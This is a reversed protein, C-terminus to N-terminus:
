SVRWCGRRAIPARRARICRSEASNSRRRVTAGEAAPVPRRPGRVASQASRARGRERRDGRGCRARDGGSRACADGSHQGGRGAARRRRPRPVRGQADGHPSLVLGRRALTELQGPAYPLVRIDASESLATMVKNPIPCQFQVDVEGRALAEAGAAFDLYVPTFESFTLGLVGFITHVHQVMGSKEPGLVIRRGRLDAVSRIPLDARVIFFLPGANM